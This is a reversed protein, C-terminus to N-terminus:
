NPVLTCRQEVYMMTMDPLECDCVGGDYDACLADRAVSYDEELSADIAERGCCRSSVAPTHLM